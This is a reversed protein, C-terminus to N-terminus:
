NKALYAKAQEIEPRADGKGALDVLRTFYRKAKAVDGSQAAAQAAGYLGRFRNPDHMESTEFEKLAEAPRKMELLMEGLLERAPVVRGPTVASKESSDETDAASRMLTLAADRNGKAYGTWASAGLRQVEVETVCYDNKAAKLGNVIRVLEQVGSEATEVDGNRAAGLARAFYTMADIYPFKSARPELQAADKWMGRELAIRAPIAALAYASGQNTPIVNTIRRSEQLVLGADKDRALQLYAYVMYDLAHLGGGPEKEAQSAEASRQNTAVSAQWAGVRTFIHSPMHLAHPASPAIDAYRKAANLGKDAIPPYDYSHILYHAVGPHDPHKKFQPELIQAAKLTDAFTKDTPSQTATLYLAYFIQAEDDKPFRKAVVEFADALSKMRASHPRDNFRDYYEAIAEIYFRERETKAGTLRARQIAEKAKQADQATANGGFTNGILIAAIGWNAIACSPDHQLVERFAKEGQQFWFSHLMAVARDFQPQVKRDCSTPFSVKGLQEQPEQQASSINSVLLLIVTALIWKIKTLEMTSDEKVPMSLQGYVM